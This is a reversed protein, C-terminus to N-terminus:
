TARRGPAVPTRAHFDHEKTTCMDCIGGAVAEPLRQRLKSALAPIGLCKQALRDDRVAHVLKRTRPAPIAPGFEATGSLQQFM